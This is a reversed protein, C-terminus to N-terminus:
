KIFKKMLFDKSLIHEFPQRQHKYKTAAYLGIVTFDSGKQM